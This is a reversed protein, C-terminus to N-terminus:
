RVYKGVRAFSDIVFIVFVGLFTYLVLEEVVNDTKENKQSELMYIIYNMKRTLEDPDSVKYSNNQSPQDTIYTGEGQQTSSYFDPTGYQKTYSGADGQNVPPINSGDNIHQRNISEYNDENMNNEMNYSSISDPPGLPQFDSMNNSADEDEDENYIQKMMATVKPNLTDKKKITKNRYRRKQEIVNSGYDNSINSDNDINNYPAAYTALSM